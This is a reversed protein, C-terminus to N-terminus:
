FINKFYELIKFKLFVEENDTEEEYITSIGPLINSLNELSSINEKSPFVLNWFNEGEGNGLVVQLSDYVGSEMTYYLNEKTSDYYISGINLKASYNTNLSYLETNIYDLIEDSNEEITQQVEEKSNLTNINLNESLYSELKDSIICKTLTDEYSNSNSVVHLRFTNEKVIIKDKISFLLYISLIVFSTLAIFSTLSINRIIKKIKNNKKFNITINNLNNKM